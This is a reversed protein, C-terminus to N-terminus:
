TRGQRELLEIFAEVPVAKSFYFGQYEDCQCSVLTELQTANEVGEAVVKLGLTKAMAVIALVIATDNSDGPMDQIFSRDIKLSTVPFRKLYALSSYGTGFDDISLTYGAANLGDM